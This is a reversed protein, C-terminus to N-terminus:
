LFSVVIVAIILLIIFLDKIWNEKISNIYNSTIIALPSFIFIFESSTRSDSFIVVAISIFLAAFIIKHPPRTAKLKNKLDSLYFFSAWIGYSFLVTIGIILAISNYESYEFNLKPINSFILDINDYMVLNYCVSLILVAVLGCFAVIWDNLKNDSYLFLSALLVLFFIIAWFYFICALAIWFSADFIKKLVNRKTRLSIIRRLALLIFVNSMLINFDLLTKPLLALFLSYLLIHFSTQETLKNKVVIFNLLFVSFVSIILLLIKELIFVPNIQDMHQNFIVYIFAVGIIGIVIIFNVPKSKKFISAIM